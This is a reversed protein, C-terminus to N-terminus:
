SSASTASLSLTAPIAQSRDASESAGFNAFEGHILKAAGVYAAHALQPTKFYGLSIQKKKNPLSIRAHYLGSAKHLYVGKFGCSNTSRTGVNAQNQSASAARLNSLRNDDKKGNIHDVQEAPWEGYAHLWILRHALYGAGDFHIQLYGDPRPKCSTQSGARARSGKNVAWFLLGTSAEYRLCERVRPATLKHM